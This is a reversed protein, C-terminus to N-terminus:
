NKEIQWERQGVKEIKIGAKQLNVKIGSMRRSLASPSKPFLKIDLGERQAIIILNEFLKKTTGNWKRYDDAFEVMAMALENEEIALLNQLIRNEDYAELFVDKGYGIAEAIACGWIAFDAMRPKQFLKITPYIKIAKSLVDFIGGLIKPKENNFDALLQTDSIMNNEEIRELQFIISRDLLDPRTAVLNIGNLVIGRKFKFSITEDDTFLKRKKFGGETVARCLLDSSKGKLESLNDFVLFYNQHFQQSLEKQSNVIPLLPIESPDILSKEIKGVTSKGAGHSGHHVQAPKTIEPIFNAIVGVLFLIQQKPNKINIFKLINKADGGSQPTDQRESARSKFLIPPNDVVRWGNEDICVAQCEDDGLDYWIENNQMATRLSLQKKVKGFTARVVIRRIFKNIEAPKADEGTLEFYRLFLWNKFRESKCKIVEYHNDVKVRVYVENFQDIFFSVNEDAQFNEELIAVNKNGKESNDKENKKKNEM